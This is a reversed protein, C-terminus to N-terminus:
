RDGGIDAALLEDVVALSQQALGADLDPNGHQVLVFWACLAAAVVAALVSQHAGAPKRGDRRPPRVNACHQLQMANM